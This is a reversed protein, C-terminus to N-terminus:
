DAADIMRLLEIEQDTRLAGSESARRINIARRDRAFNGADYRVQSPAFAAYALM